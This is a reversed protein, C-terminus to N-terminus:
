WDFPCRTAPTITSSVPPIPYYQTIRQIQEAMKTSTLMEVLRLAEDLGSSIGGGTIRNRDVFYRPYGEVVQVEPFRKLCPIFAWHTTAKYGNLLGAAALL